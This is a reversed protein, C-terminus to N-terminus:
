RGIGLYNCLQGNSPKEMKAGCNWRYIIERWAVCALVIHAIYLLTDWFAGKETFCEMVPPLLFSSHRLTRFYIQKKIKSMGRALLLLFYKRPNESIENDAFNKMYNEASNRISQAGLFFDRM